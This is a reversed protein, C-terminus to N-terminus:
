SPGALIPEGPLPCANSVTITMVAAGLAMARAFGEHLAAFVVEDDGWTMTSMSGVRYPLGRSSLADLVERISSTVDQQDLPYLSLQASIGTM